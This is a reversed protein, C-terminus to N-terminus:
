SIASWRLAIHTDWRSVHREQRLSLIINQDYGYVDQEEPAFFESAEVSKEPLAV